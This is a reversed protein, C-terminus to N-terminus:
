GEYSQSTHIIIIRMFFYPFRTLSLSYHVWFCTQHNTCSGYSADTVVTLCWLGCTLHELSWVVITGIGAWRVLEGAKVNPDLELHQQFLNFDVYVATNLTGCGLVYFVHSLLKQLFFVYLYYESIFAQVFFRWETLSTFEIVERVKM